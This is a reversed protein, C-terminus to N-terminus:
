DITRPSFLSVMFAGSVPGCWRGCAAGSVSCRRAPRAGGTVSWCWASSVGMLIFFAGVSCFETERRWPVCYDLLSLMFSFRFAGLLASAQGLLAGGPRALYSTTGSYNTSPLHGLLRCNTHRDLPAHSRLGTQSPNSCSCSTAARPLRRVHSGLTDGVPIYLLLITCKM